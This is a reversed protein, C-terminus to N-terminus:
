HGELYTNIIWPNDKPLSSIRGSPRIALFFQYHYSEVTKLQKISRLFTISTHIDNDDYKLKKLNEATYLLKSQFKSLKKHHESSLHKSLAIYLIKKNEKFTFMIALVKSDMEEYSILASLAKDLEKKSFKTNDPYTPTVEKLTKRTKADHRIDTKRFRLM